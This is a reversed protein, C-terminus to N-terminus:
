GHLQLTPHRRWCGHGEGDCPPVWQVGVARTNTADGWYSFADLYWFLIVSSQLTRLWPVSYTPPTVRAQQSPFPLPPQPPREEVLCAGIPIEVDRPHRGGSGAAGLVGEPPWGPSGGGGEMQAASPGYLSEEGGPGQVM